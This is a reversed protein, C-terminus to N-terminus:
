QPLEVRAAARQPGNCEEGAPRVIQYDLTVDQELLIRTADRVVVHVTNPTGEFGLVLEAGAQGGARRASPMVSTCRFNGRADVGADPLLTVGADLPPLAPVPVECRFNAAGWADNFSVEVAYQASPWSESSITLEFADIYSVLPCLSDDLCGVLLPLAALWRKM